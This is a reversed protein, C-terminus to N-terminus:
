FAAVGYTSIFYNEPVQPLHYKRREAEQIEDDIMEFDWFEGDLTMFTALPNMLALQRRRFAQQKEIELAQWRKWADFSMTKFRTRWTQKKASDLTKNSSDGYGSILNPKPVLSLLIFVFIAVDGTEKSEDYSERGAGLTEFMRGWREIEAIRLLDKDSIAKWSEFKCMYAATELIASENTKDGRIRESHNKTDMVSVVLRKYHIRSGGSAGAKNLCYRWEGQLTKDSLNFKKLEREFKKATDADVAIFKSLLLLHIHIHFGNLVDGTTRVTFEVGKIGGKVRSKWFIRDILIKFARQIRETAAIPDSGKMLPQTLLVSRWRLGLVQKATKDFISDLKNVARRGKIRAEKSKKAACSTCLRENCAFRTGRGKFFKGDKNQLNDAVFINCSEACKGIRYAKAAGISNTPAVNELRAAIKKGQSRYIMAVEEANLQKLSRNARLGVANPYFNQKSKENTRTLINM